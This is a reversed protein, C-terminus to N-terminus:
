ATGQVNRYDPHSTPDIISGASAGLEEDLRRLYRGILRRTRGWDGRNKRSVAIVDVRTQGFQDLGVRIKVDTESGTIPTKALASMLGSRDDARGFSWGLIGGSVVRLSAQWVNEFPITYTRGTLRLDDSDPDTEARFEQLGRLIGKL